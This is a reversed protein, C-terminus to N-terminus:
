SKWKFFNLFAKFPKKPVIEDDYYGQGYKYNYKYGYGYGYGYNYGYHSPKNMDNLLISLDKIHEQEHLNNIVKLASKDTYNQRVVYVFVDTFKSVLLADTVIAVPPTDIIVYDFDRKLKEIFHEMKVSEILEAPNPPIPGSLAYFLNSVESELIVEEYSNTGILHTSIGIQNNLNLEKHIKPKRLDLGVLIVRKDSAAIIAALNIACFTKGEGSVTSTLAIVRKEKDILMYRLNTRLSRFAEAIISKPHKAAPIKTPKHNHGITGVIPIQTQNEIDLRDQIRTNFFAIAVILLIPIVLGIMIWKKKTAATDPAQYAANAPLAKDLIKSDPSNSAQTIGAEARKQLLFSYIHDNLNFTREINFLNRENIPLQRIQHTIQVLTSDLEKMTIQLAFKNDKINKILAEKAAEIARDTEGFINVNNTQKVGHSEIKRQEYLEMIKLVNENLMKDSIGMIVPPIIMNLERKTKIDAELYNFYNWKYITEAKQAHLEQMKVYVAEGEKSIDYINNAQKYDLLSDQVMQLSDVINGLQIDIFKITNRAIENKEDLGRRIYVEILKNLFDSEKEPVTGRIWLWLISGVGKRVEVELKKSYRNTLGNRSNFYFYYRKNILSESFDQERLDITFDYGNETYPEGFNYIKQIEKKGIADISYQFESLITIYFNQWKPQEQLKDSNIIFPTKKYLESDRFRGVQFYSVDFDLEDIAMKSLFYSKFIGIENPASKFFQLGRGLYSEAGKNQNQILITSYVAYIPVASKNLYYAWSLALSLSIVFFYWYKLGLFLYKKIDISQAQSTSQFDNEM